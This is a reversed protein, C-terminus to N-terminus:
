ATRSAVLHLTASCPVVSTSTRWVKARESAALGVLFVVPEAFSTPLIAVFCFSAVHQRHKEKHPIKDFSLIFPFAISSDGV